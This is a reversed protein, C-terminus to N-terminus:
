RSSCRLNVETGTPDITSPLEVVMTHTSDGPPMVAGIEQGIEEGTGVGILRGDSDRFVATADCHMVEPNPSDAHYRVVSRDSATTPSGALEGSTWFADDADPDVWGTAIDGATVEQPRDTQTSDLWRTKIVTFERETGTVLEDRSTIRGVAAREGPLLRPIETRDERDTDLKGFSLVAGALTTASTNEVIAGWHSAEGSQSMAWGSEVVRIRDENPEESSEVQSPEDSESEAAQDPLPKPPEHRTSRGLTAGAYLAAGAVVVLATVPIWHRRPRDDGAPTPTSQDPM